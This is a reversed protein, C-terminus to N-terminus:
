EVLDTEEPQKLEPFEVESQDKITFDFKECAKLHKKNETLAFGGICERPSIVGNEQKIPFGENTTFFLFRMINLHQVVLLRKYNTVRKQLYKLTLMM